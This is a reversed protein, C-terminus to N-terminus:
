DKDIDKDNNYSINLDIEQGENDLVVNFMQSSGKGANEIRDQNQVNMTHGVYFGAYDSPLGESPQHNCYEV